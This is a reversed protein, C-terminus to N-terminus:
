LSREIQDIDPMEVDGMWGAWEPAFMKMTWLLNIAVVVWFTVQFTMKRNKHRIHWQALLAGPWGGLLSLTHLTKEPTRWEQQQAKRKDWWYVGYTLLSMGIVSLPWLFNLGHLIGYIGMVVFYAIVIGIAVRM